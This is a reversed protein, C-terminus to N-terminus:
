APRRIGIQIAGHSDAPGENLLAVFLADVVVANGQVKGKESQFEIELGADRRCTPFIRLVV